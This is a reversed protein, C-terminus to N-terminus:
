NHQQKRTPSLVELSIFHAKKTLRDIVLIMHKGTKQNPFHDSSIWELQNRPDQPFATPTINRTPSSQHRQGNPLTGNNFMDGFIQRCIQGTTHGLSRSTYKPMALRGYNTVFPATSRGRITTPIQQSCLRCYSAREM